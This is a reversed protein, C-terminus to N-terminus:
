LCITKAITPGERRNKHKPSDEAQTPNPGHPVGAIRQRRRGRESTRGRGHRAGRLRQRRCRRRSSARAGGEHVSWARAEGGGSSRQSSRSPVTHTVTHRHHIENPHARARYWHCRTRARARATGNADQGNRSPARTYLLNPGSRQMPLLHALSSKTAHPRANTGEAHQTITTAAM